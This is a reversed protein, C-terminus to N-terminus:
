FVILHTLPHKICSIGQVVFQFFCSYFHHPVIAFCRSTFFKSISIQNASWQSKDLKRRALHDGELWSEVWMFIETYVTQPCAYGCWLRGAVATFLFLSLAALILLGTLYVFDQPWFVLGFIYFKRAVLDFLVAQRGNWILWPSGYYVLQTLFVLAWRWRAFWGHVSRPYIKQQQDLLPFFVPQAAPEPPNSM